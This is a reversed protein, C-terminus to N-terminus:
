ESPSSVLSLLTQYKEYAIKVTPYEARIISEAIYDNWIKVHPFRRQHSGGELLQRLRDEIDLMAYFQDEPMNIEIGAVSEPVVYKATNDLSHFDQCQRYYMRSSSQTTAQYTRCFRELKENILGKM